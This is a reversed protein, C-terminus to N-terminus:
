DGATSTLDAIMEALHNMEGDLRKTMIPVAMIIETPRPDAGFAARFGDAGLLTTLAAVYSELVFHVGKSEVLRHASALTAFARQVSMSDIEIDVAAVAAEIGERRGM